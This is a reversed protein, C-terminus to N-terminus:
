YTREGDRFFSGTESPEEYNRPKREREFQGRSFSGGQEFGERNRDANRGDASPGSQPPSRSFQRECPM